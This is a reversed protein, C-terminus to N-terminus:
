QKDYVQIGHVQRGNADAGTFTFTSMKGDRSIVVTGTQVVKGAKIRSLNITYADVRTYATADFDPSGASPHPMGDLIRMTALRTPNGEADIGASALKANQGEGQIYLTTSKPPPGPSFKSKAVNLQWLGNDLNSQAFGHQPLTAIALGLLTMGTLMTRRNMINRGKTILFLDGVADFATHESTPIHITVL